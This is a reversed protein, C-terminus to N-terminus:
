RFSERIESARGRVQLERQDRNSVRNGSARGSRQLEAQNGFTEMNGVARGSDQRGGPARRVVSLLSGLQEPPLFDIALLNYRVDPREQAPRGHVWIDRKGLEVMCGGPKLLALSAAVMGTAPYPPLSFM